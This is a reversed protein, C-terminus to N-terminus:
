FETVALLLKSDGVPHTFPPHLCSVAFDSHLCCWHSRHDRKQECNTIITECVSM